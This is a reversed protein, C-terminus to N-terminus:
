WKFFIRRKKMELNLEQSRARVKRAFCLLDPETWVKLESPVLVKELTMSEPPSGPGFYQELKISGLGQKRREIYETLAERFISTLQKNERVAIELAADLIYKDCFRFNVPVNWRHRPVM